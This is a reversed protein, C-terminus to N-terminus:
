NVRTWNNRSGTFDRNFEVAFLYNFNYICIERMESVHRENVLQLCEHLIGMERPNGEEITENVFAIDLFSVLFDRLAIFFGKIEDCVFTRWNRLQRRSLDLCM